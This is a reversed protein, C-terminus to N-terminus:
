RRFCSFRAGATVPRVASSSSFPTSSDGRNRCHFYNPLLPRNRETNSSVVELLADYRNAGGFLAADFQWRQEPTLNAIQDEMRRRINDVLDAITATAQRNLKSM